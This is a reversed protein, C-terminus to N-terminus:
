DLVPGVRRLHAGLRRSRGYPFIEIAEGARIRDQMRQWFRVEFLDGHHYDLAQWLEGRLGLFRSFEEPFIDHSGVGFWPDAAMEEDPRDSEPMRRFNCEVLPTIEDYDYFVVRGGRTVGFNKLLMDGPFINAAALNKIARGYDVIAARARVPNAERLYLDLPALRREVYVHRLTLHDGDVVVSRAAETTLEDLLGPEFRDVPFRLNEFEAADVLRGARDHRAVLRYRDMVRRRTTEKPFPFRDRIVKFVVDYGPVTFVIMVMGKIGRTHDFRDSSTAIHRSFDRFLETKGHKPYGIATYLEARTRSPVLGALFTVLAAPRDTAVCFAARTYSFLVGVEEPETLVAGIVLGRSTHHVAVAIPLTAGGARLQGVLYAGQGRYFTRDAMVAEDVEGAIGHLRLARRIEAGGLVADRTLNQWRGDIGAGSVIRGILAAPDPGPYRVLSPDGADAPTGSFEVGTFEGGTFEVDPDVGVTGLMRRTCSNFFTEAIERDVRDAVAAAFRGKAAVWTDRDPGPEGLAAVAGAVADAYVDLRRTVTAQAARWDREAFADAASANVAGMADLHAEYHETVAGAVLVESAASPTATM